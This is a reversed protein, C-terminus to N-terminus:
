RNRRLPKTVHQYRKPAVDAYVPRTNSGTEMNEEAQVNRRSTSTTERKMRTTEKITSVLALSTHNKQQFPTTLYAMQSPQLIKQGVASPLSGKQPIFQFNLNVNKSILSSQTPSTMHENTHHYHFSSNVEEDSGRIDM